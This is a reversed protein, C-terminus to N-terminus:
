RGCVQVPRRVLIGSTDYYSQMETRCAGEGNRYAAQTYTAAVPTPSQSIPAGYQDYYVYRAPRPQEPYSGYSSRYRGSNRNYASSRYRGCGSGAIQHGVVAGGLGGIIAGGGGRSISNGILAGGIGGIVTGAVKRDQCSASAKAPAALLPLSLLGALTTMAILRKM